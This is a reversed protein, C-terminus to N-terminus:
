NKVFSNHLIVEGRHNLGVLSYHGANLSTLNVEVHFPCSMVTKGSLDIIELSKLKDVADGKIHLTNNVPNPFLMFDGKNIERNAVSIHYGHALAYDGSILKPIRVFGKRDTPNVILKNYNDYERWPESWDKRYVLLLSDESKYLIDRDISLSDIGNYEIRADMEFEGHQVMSVQWFHNGSIKDINAEMAQVDPAVLHHVINVYNSDTIINVDCVMGTYPLDPTGTNRLIANSQLSALNLDQNENVIFVVPTYDHPLLINMSSSEGSLKQRIVSRVLNKDYMTISVPVDTYLHAAHHAKQKFQVYAYHQGNMDYVKSSDIFFTCYGPNFIFDDFYSTMNVGSNRNLFDRFEYADLSKGNLSDFIMTCVNRYREDGLYARMNHVMAAGKRYTHTGYTKEYPMPSLALYAGDNIHANFIINSLNAKVTKIFEEKGYAKEIFLHSSYEANGEKIWMDKADNMTTIDGWWHHGYEHAYLKENQILTGNQITSIPYAVNTPHEMAGQTTAIFGVREFRYQGFWYEFADIATGIKGFHGVMKNLDAPKSILEIPIKGNIGQHESKAVAYNAAAISSLYTTIPTSMKYHRKIKGTGLLEESIFTGVCYARKDPSTTVFYDFTSREVFNDFCPFWVKGFNPPTTSLGIGLNYIYDDVFYFGGWVPDRSPIGQYYVILEDQTDKSLGLGFYATIIDNSYDFQIKNGRFFISDVQLQKLDLQIWQIQDLNTKFQVTTIAKIYKGVYNSIDIDIAYNLIDISDSRKNSNEIQALELVTPKSRSLSHQLAHHCPIFDDVPQALLYNGICHILCVFLLKRM